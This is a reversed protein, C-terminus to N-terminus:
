FEEPNTLEHTLYDYLAEYNGSHYYGALAFNSLEYEKRGKVNLVLGSKGPYLEATISYNYSLVEIWGKLGEYMHFAIEKDTLKTSGKLFNLKPM